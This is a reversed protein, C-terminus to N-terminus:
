PGGRESALGREHSSDQALVFVHVPHPPGELLRLTATSPDLRVRQDPRDHNAIPLEGTFAMVFSEPARVGLYDCKRVGTSGGGARSEVHSELWATMVALRRGAGLRDECRADGPDDHRHAVRERLDASAAQIGKRRGSEDDLGAAFGM